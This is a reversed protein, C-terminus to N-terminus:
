RVRAVLAYVEIVGSSINVDATDTTAKIDITDSSSFVLPKAALPAKNVIIQANLDGPLYSTGEILNLVRITVRNAWSVHGALVLDSAAEDNPSIMVHDNFAAGDIVVDIELQNKNPLNHTEIAATGTLITAAHGVADLALGNGWYNQVTGYGLDVTANAPCATIVKIWANLVIDDAQIHMVQHLDGEGADLAKTAFYIKNWMLLLPSEKRHTRSNDLFTTYIM